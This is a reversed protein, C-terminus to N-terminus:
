GVVDLTALPDRIKSNTEGIGMKKQSRESRRVYGQLPACWLYDLQLIPNNDYETEKM